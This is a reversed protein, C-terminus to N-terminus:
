GRGCRVAEEIGGPSIGIDHLMAEDLTSVERLARRIEIERMLSAMLDSLRSPKRATRASTCEHVISLASM